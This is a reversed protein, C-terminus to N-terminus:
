STQYINKYKMRNGKAYKLSLLCGVSDPFVTCSFQNHAYRDATVPLSDSPYLVLNRTQLDRKEQVRIQTQKFNEYSFKM